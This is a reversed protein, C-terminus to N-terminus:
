TAYKDSFEVIKQEIFNEPISFSYESNWLEYTPLPTAKPYYDYEFLQGKKILKVEDSNDSHTVLIEENKLFIISNEM